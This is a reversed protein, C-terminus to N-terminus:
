GAQARVQRSKIWNWVLVGLVLFAGGAEIVEDPNFIAIVGPVVLIRSLKDMWTFLYGEIASAFGVLGIVV